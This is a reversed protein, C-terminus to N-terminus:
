DKGPIIGKEENEISDCIQDLTEIVSIVNGNSMTLDTGGKNREMSSILKPNVWMIIGKTRMVAIM